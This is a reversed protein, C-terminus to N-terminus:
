VLLDRFQIMELFRAAAPLNWLDSYTTGFDQRVDLEIETGDELSIAGPCMDVRRGNLVVAVGEPDCYEGICRHTLRVGWEEFLQWLHVDIPRSADVHIVGDCHRTHLPSAWGTIHDVGIGAPVVRERGGAVIQLSAVARFTARGDSQVPLMASVARDRADVPAAWHAPCKDIVPVPAAAAPVTVVAVIAIMTAIMLLKGYSKM